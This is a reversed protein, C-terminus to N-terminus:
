TPIYQSPNLLFDHFSLVRVQAPGYLEGWGSRKENVRPCQHPDGVGRRGELPTGACGMLTIKTRYSAVENISVHAFESSECYHQLLPVHKTKKFLDSITISQGGLVPPVIRGM